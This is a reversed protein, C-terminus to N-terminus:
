SVQSLKAEWKEKLKNLPEYSYPIDPNLSDLDDQFDSILEKKVRKLIELHHSINILGSAGIKYKKYDNESM